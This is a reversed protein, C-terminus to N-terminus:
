VASSFIKTKPLARWLRADFAMCINRLFARGRITVDVQYPGIRVLGDEELPKLRTLISEMDGTKDEEREWSTRFRCMLNLIHKRLILDEHDLFHGKIIPFKGESVLSEYEEVTKNNQIYADWCDSISSAGLGILVRTYHHTYGMFNRHLRGTCSAHFLSDEELAFHDMGIEYYGAKLFLTRGSEYLARKVRDVPLDNETFKRQGPKVWPVHAYSYFAVRDPRLKNVLAITRQIGPLTQFPLGYILDFNISTFGIRRALSVSEHVQSFTQIRHIADQVKEDFDQIGYSVRRFGLEYLTSLHEETTNGPHAEFSFEARPHLRAGLLIGEILMRLNGPEFFTPTGGGLHIERIQPKEPFVDLYLEWEKLLSELYPQEVAHNVTIRTNCACYTCLSECFPLHIYISIGDKSNSIKFSEQLRSIWTSADPIGQDWYPVTPYSTYRPAAVNYKGILPDVADAIITETGNPRPM